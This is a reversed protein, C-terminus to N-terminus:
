WNKCIRCLSSVTGVQERSMFINYDITWLVFEVAIKWHKHMLTTKLTNLMMTSCLLAESKALGNVSGYLVNDIDWVTVREHMLEHTM